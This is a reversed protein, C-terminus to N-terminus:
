KMGSGILKIDFPSENADNSKVHIAANRTGKARPKFSVKFTTSAGAVLSYKSPQTVIFDKTNLGDLKIVLGTLTKTGINRITFIKPLGKNGVLLSGLSKKSSGDLLNSNSPQLITIEPRDYIVATPYGRWTPLAFGSKGDYFYVKFGDNVQDFVDTGMTPANGRFTANTLGSCRNFAYDAISKVSSPITVSMLGACRSFADTGIGTVSSPISVSTLGTCDHFAFEGISTVGSPITVSTLGSCRDFANYDIHTVSSPISVSTLGTCGSFTGILSTVGSPISVSTLGTCGSFAYIGLSTVGSPITINRLSFCNKFAYHGIFSVSNPITVSALSSCEAFVGIIGGFDQGISTVSSPITVNTLDSCGFFAGNGISTVGNPISVSTLGTCARFAEYGISTVAKGDITAPISLPGGLNTPYDTITISSGDDTYTFNGFTAADSFVALSCFICLALSFTIVIKM